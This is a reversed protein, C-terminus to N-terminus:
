EEETLAQILGVSDAGESYLHLFGAFKLSPISKRLNKKLGQGYLILRNYFRQCNKQIM